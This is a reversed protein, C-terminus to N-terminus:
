QPSRQPSPAGTANGDGPSPQTSTPERALKKLVELQEALLRQLEHIQLQERPDVHERLIHMAKFSDNNKVLSVAGVIAAVALLLAAPFVLREFMRYLAFAVFGAWLSVTMLPVHTEGIFGELLHVVYYPALAALLAFEGWRQITHIERNTRNAQEVLANQTIALYNQDLTVINRTAREYRIGLRDIFDFESGLRRKIFQDYPQNGELRKIRLSGVSEEFQRVYYRSREVRYLLGSGTSALFKGNIDNLQQHAQAISDMVQVNSMSPEEEGIEEDKADDLVQGRRSLARRTRDNEEKKAIAKRAAQTSEDLSGLERGAEHLLKVDKLACVRLTGLLLLQGVLRGLQWKNVITKSNDPNRSAKTRPPYKHNTYLIFEVPIRQEDPMSPSQPGLTSMYFARGDLLYNVTCEYRVDGKRHQILPLFAAKANQGWSYRRDREVEWGYDAFEVAQESLILGRFDGFIKQFLGINEPDASSQGLIERDFTAWFRHFFYDNVERATDDDRRKADVATKRANLFEGAVVIMRNLEAIESYAGIAAAGTKNLEVFSTVAFYETFIDVRITVDLKHWTFSLSVSRSTSKLIDYQRQTLPGQIPLFSKEHYYNKFLLCFSSINPNLHADRDFARAMRSIQMIFEDVADKIQDPSRKSIKNGRLEMGDFNTWFTLHRVLAPATLIKPPRRHAGANLEHYDPATGFISRTKFHHNGTDSM